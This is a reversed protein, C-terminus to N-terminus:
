NRDKSFKREVFCKNSGIQLQDLKSRLTTNESESLFQKYDSVVAFLKKESTNKSKEGPSNYINVQGGINMKPMADDSVVGGAGSEPPELCFTLKERHNYMWNNYRRIVDTSRM